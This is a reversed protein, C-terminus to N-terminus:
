ISNGLHPRRVIRWGAWRAAIGFFVGLFNLSIFIELIDRSDLSIGSFAKFYFIHFGVGLAIVGLLIPIRLRRQLLEHWLLLICLLYLYIVLHKNDTEDYAILGAKAAAILFTLYVMSWLSWQFPAVPTREAQESDTIRSRFRLLLILVSSVSVVIGVACGVFVVTWILGITLKKSIEPSSWIEPVHRLLLALVFNLTVVFVWDFGKRFQKGSTWSLGLFCGWWILNLLFWVYGPLFDFRLFGTKPEAILLEGIAILWPLLCNLSILLTNREVFDADEHWPIPQPKVASAIPLPDARSEAQPPEYPNM